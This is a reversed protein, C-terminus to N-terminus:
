ELADRKRAIEAVAYSHTCEFGFFLQVIIELQVILVMIERHYEINAVVIHCRGCAFLEFVCYARSVIVKSRILYEPVVHVIHCVFTPQMRMRALVNGRNLEHHKYHIIHLECPRCM